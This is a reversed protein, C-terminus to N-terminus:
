YPSNDTDQCGAACRSWAKTLQFEGITEPLGAKVEEAWANLFEADSLSKKKATIVEVKVSATLSPNDRFSVKLYATGVGKGTASLQAAFKGLNPNDSDRDWWVIKILDNPDGSVDDFIIEDANEQTYESPSSSGDAFKVDLYIAPNSMVGPIDSAPDERNIPIRNLGQSGTQISTQLNLKVSSPLPNAASIASFGTLLIFAIAVKVTM